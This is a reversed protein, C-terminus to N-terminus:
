FGGFIGECSNIAGPFGASIDRTDLGLGFARVGTICACQLKVAESVARSNAYEFTRLCKEYRGRIDKAPDEAMATSGGLVVMGIVAAAFKTQANTFRMKDGMAEFRHM